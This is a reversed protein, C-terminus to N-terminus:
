QPKASKGDRMYYITGLEATRDITLTGEVTVPNFSFSRPKDLFVELMEQAQAHPHFPCTPPQVMVVFHKHKEAEELPFMYGMVKVPKGELAEIEPTLTVKATVEDVGESYEVSAKNLTHWIKAPLAQRFETMPVKVLAMPARSPVCVLGLASVICCLFRAM